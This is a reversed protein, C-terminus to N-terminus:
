EEWPTAIGKMEKQEEELEEMSTGSSVRIIPQLWRCKDWDTSPLAEWFVALGAGKQMYVIADTITDPNPICV